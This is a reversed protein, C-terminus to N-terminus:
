KISYQEKLDNIRKETLMQKWGLKAAGMGSGGYWSYEIVKSDEDRFKLWARQAIRQQEVWEKKLNEPFGKM